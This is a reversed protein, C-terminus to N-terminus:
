LGVKFADVLAPTLSQVIVQPVFFIILCLRIATKMFGAEHDPNVALDKLM